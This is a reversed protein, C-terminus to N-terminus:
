CNLLTLSVQEQLAFEAVPNLFLFEQRGGDDGAQADGEMNPNVDGEGKQDEEEHSVDYTEKEREVNTVTGHIARQPEIGGGEM